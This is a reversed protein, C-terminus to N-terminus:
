RLRDPTWPATGCLVCGDARGPHWMLRGFFSAWHGTM